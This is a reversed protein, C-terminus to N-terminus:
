PELPVFSQMEVGMWLGNMRLQDVKRQEPQGDRTRIRISDTLEHMSVPMIAKFLLGSFDLTAGAGEHM